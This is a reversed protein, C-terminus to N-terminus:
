DINEAQLDLGRMGRLSGGGFCCDLTRMGIVIM